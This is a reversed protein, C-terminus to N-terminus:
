DLREPKLRNRYVMEPHVPNSTEVYDWLDCFDQGVRIISDLGIWPKITICYDFQRKQCVWLYLGKRKTILVDSRCM